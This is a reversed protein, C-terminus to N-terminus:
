QIKAVFHFLSDWPALPAQGQAWGGRSAGLAWCGRGDQRDTGPSGMEGSVSRCLCSAAAQVGLAARDQQKSVPLHLEKEEEELFELGVM